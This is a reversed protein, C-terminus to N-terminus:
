KRFCERSYIVESRMCYVKLNRVGRGVEVFKVIETILKLPKVFGCLKQGLFRHISSMSDYITLFASFSM